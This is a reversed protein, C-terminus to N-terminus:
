TVSYSQIHLRKLNSDLAPFFSEYQSSFHDPCKFVFEAMESAEHKNMCAETSFDNRKQTARQNSSEQILSLDPANDVMFQLLVSRSGGHQQVVLKSGVQFRNKLFLSSGSCILRGESMVGIRDGLFDAEDMYHTTLVMVRDQKFHALIEWMSRRAQLDLGATPEDLLVLKSDGVLALGVM